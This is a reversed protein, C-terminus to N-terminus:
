NGLNLNIYKMLESSIPDKKLSKEVDYEDFPNQAGSTDGGNMEDLAQNSEQGGYQEMQKIQLFVNNLITDKEKNYPRGTYKEFMMEFPVMGADLKKKDLDVAVGENEKDVGCFVFEFDADIESVIWKTYVKQIFNLLPKLGKEKSHELREHQGDQGFVNSQGTFQYGLETPDINYVSCGVIILLEIWRQWEMDTNKGQLDIWELDIGAFIPMKHSNNIGAAMQRWTQRFDNVVDLNASQDKLNLFGKPNSGQKFFNGNYQFGWLIWTLIDTLIEIESTGYGNDNISTTKNRQDYMLEWPYYLIPQNTMYNNVINGNWVQAYRPFHGLVKNYKKASQEDFRRDITELLRITSADIATFGILKNGLTREMEAALQDYSLSDRVVKRTFEPLDDTLDWKSKDGGNELFKVIYEIKKGDERSIKEGKKKGDDFLSKKRRITYGERSEDETFNLYNQIQFIRTNIISSVFPTRSVKDMISFPLRKRDDKFGNHNGQVDFPDFLFARPSVQKQKNSNLYSQAKMIDVADNSKLQNEILLNKHILLEQIRKDYERADQIGKIEDIM